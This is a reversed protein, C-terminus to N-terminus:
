RDSRTRAEPWTALMRPTATRARRVWRVTRDFRRADDADWAFGYQQRLAPPLLGLTVRRNLAAAAGTVLPIPPALVAATLERADAGVAIAGSEYMTSLYRRLSRTDRPVASPVAGLAVAVDGADVCYHDREADTLPAVLTEYALPISELLTAHVWLVLAPDEASYRTGASFHGAATPLIGHVRRHIARIGDLAATRAAPAGFTLALMARVTHHLRRAATLPGGRFTSHERVGAAVLPHALQM